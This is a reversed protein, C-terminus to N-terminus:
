CGKEVSMKLCDDRELGHRQTGKDKESRQRNREIKERWFEANTKSRTKRDHNHSFCGYHIFIVTVYKKLVIDSKGLLRKDNKRYCYCRSLLYERVLIEPKASKSHVRSQLNLYWTCFYDFPFFSSNRLLFFIWNTEPDIMSKLNCLRSLIM